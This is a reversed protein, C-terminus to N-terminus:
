PREARAAKRRQRESNARSRAERDGFALRQAEEFPLRIVGSLPGATVIVAGVQITRSYDKYGRENKPEIITTVVISGKPLVRGDALTSNYALQHYDREREYGETSRSHGFDGGGYARVFEFTDNARGKWYPRTSAGRLVVQKVDQVTASFWSSGGAQRNNVDVHIQKPELEIKIAPGFHPSASLAGAELVGPALALLELPRRM